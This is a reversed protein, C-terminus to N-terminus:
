RYPNSLQCGAPASSVKLIRQIDTHPSPLEFVKEVQIEAYVPPSCESYEFFIPPEANLPLQQPAVFFPRLKNRDGRDLRMQVAYEELSNPKVMIVCIMTDYTRCECFLNRKPGVHIVMDPMFEQSILRPYRGDGLGYGLEHM